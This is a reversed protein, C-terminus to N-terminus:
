SNKELLIRAKILREALKEPKVGPAKKQKEYRELIEVESKYNKKKRYLIALRLYPAPAVGWRMKRSEKETEEVWKINKNIEKDYEINPLNSKIEKSTPESIETKKEKSSSKKLALYIFISVGIIIIWIHM